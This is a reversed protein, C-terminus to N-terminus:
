QLLYPIPVTHSASSYLLRTSSVAMLKSSSVEPLCAYLVECVGWPFKSTELSGPAMGDLGLNVFVNGSVPLCEEEKSFLFMQQCEAWRPVVRQSKCKRRCYGLKESLGPSEESCGPPAPLRGIVQMDLTSPRCGSLLMEWKIWNQLFQYFLM